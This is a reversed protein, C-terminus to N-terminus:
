EEPEAILSDDVVSYVPYPLKNYDDFWDTGLCYTKIGDPMYNDLNGAGPVCPSCFQTFTYYPSKIVMIDTDLCDTLIYEDDEYKMGISEEGYCDESMHWTRCTQCFYDYTKSKSPILSENGCNPCNFPYVYEMDNLANDSLSSQAIVGYRIGTKTDINSKGLGYDIGAYM